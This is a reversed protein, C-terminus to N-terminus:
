LGWKKMQKENNNWNKNVKVNLFLKIKQDLLNQLYLRASMGIKKILKGNQGIVIAKQSERGVYITAEIEWPNDTGQFENFSTIEVWVSHPLEDRLNENIYKRIAESVIFRVPENTIQDKDYFPESDYAYKKINDIIKTSNEKNKDNYPWIEKFGLNTLQEVKKIYTNKNKSLIDTKSIIAVKNKFNKIKDLIFLDGQSIKENLPSLFLVLDIDELSNLAQKNLLEGLKNIPKHIGPTDCFIIQYDNDTYIGHIQKRTTQAVNTAISAEFGIINNLLTSKGVNPRGIITAFCVKM